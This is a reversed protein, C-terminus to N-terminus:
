ASERALLNLLDCKIRELGEIAAAPSRVIFSGGSLHEYLDGSKKYDDPNWPAQGWEVNLAHIHGRYSAWVVYNGQMTIQAALGTIESVLKIEAETAM